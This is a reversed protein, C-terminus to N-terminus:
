VHMALESSALGEVNAALCNRLNMEIPKNTITSVAIPVMLRAGNVGVEQDSYSLARSLFMLADSQSVITIVWAM